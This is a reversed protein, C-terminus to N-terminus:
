VSVIWNYKFWPHVEGYVTKTTNLGHTRKYKNEKKDESCIKTSYGSGCTVNHIARRHNRWIPNPSPKVERRRFVHLHTEQLVRPRRLFPFHSSFNQTLTRKKWGFCKESSQGVWLAPNTASRNSLLMFNQPSLIAICCGPRADFKQQKQQTVSSVPHARFPFGIHDTM